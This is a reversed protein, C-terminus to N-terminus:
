LFFIMFDMELNIIQLNLAPLSKCHQLTLIVVFFALFIQPVGALRVEHGRQAEDINVVLSPLEERFREALQKWTHPISESVFNWPLYKSAFAALFKGASSFCQLYLFFGYLRDKGDTLSQLSKVPPLDLSDAWRTVVKSWHDEM